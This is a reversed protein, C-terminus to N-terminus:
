KLILIKQEGASYINGGDSFDILALEFQTTFYYKIQQRLPIKKKRSIGGARFEPRNMYNSPPQKLWRLPRRLVYQIATYLSIFHFAIERGRMKPLSHFARFNFHSYIIILWNMIWSFGMIWENLIWQHQENYVMWIEDIRILRTVGLKRMRFSNLRNEVM